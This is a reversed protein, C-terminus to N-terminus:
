ETPQFVVIMALAGREDQPVQAYPSTSTIFVIWGAYPGRTRVLQNLTQSSHLGGQVRLDSLNCIQIALMAIPM